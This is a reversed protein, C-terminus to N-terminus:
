LYVLYILRLNEHIFTLYNLKQFNQILQHVIELLRLLRQFKHTLLYYTIHFIIRIMSDGIVNSSLKFTGKMGNKIGYKLKEVQSNFLKVSLTNYQTM